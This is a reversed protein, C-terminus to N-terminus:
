ELCNSPDRCFRLQLSNFVFLKTSNALLKIHTSSTWHGSRKEFVTLSDNVSAYKGTLLRYLGCAEQRTRCCYETTKYHSGNEDIEGEALLRQNRVAVSQNDQSVLSALFEEGTRSFSM